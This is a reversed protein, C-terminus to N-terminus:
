ADKRKLPGNWWYNHMSMKKSISKPITTYHKGLFYGMYKLGNRLFFEPVLCYKRRAALYRFESKLYQIGEGEAKGFKELLWEESRHFVGTDFYRKFDETVTYNHSHYVIADAAYALSYGSLLIRAGAHMDEGMILDEKFYGIKSLVNRRYAAFSNSIFAARIGKTGDNLSRVHSVDSYNFFRIHEAFTTAEPYPLQRGYAAGIGPDASFPKLLKEIADSRAPLADHTLFIIIDGKSRRVGLNRTKGHGFEERAINVVVAGFKEAIAPTNDTSASDVVIIEEALVTQALISELLAPLYLASNITPIVISVM